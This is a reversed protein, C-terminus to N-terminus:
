DTDWRERNDEEEEAETFRPQHPPAVRSDVRQCPVGSKKSCIRPLQPLPKSKRAGKNYLGEEVLGDKDDLKLKLPGKKKIEFDKHDFM